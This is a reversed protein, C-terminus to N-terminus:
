AGRYRAATEAALQPHTRALRELYLDRVGPRRHLAVSGVSVAGAAVCAEVVAWLHEDDDSLGPLVPAVLVGCAPRTSAGSRKSEVLQWM